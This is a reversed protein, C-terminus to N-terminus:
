NMSQTPLLFPQYAKSQATVRQRLSFLVVHKLNRFKRNPQVFLLYITFSLALSVPKLTLM